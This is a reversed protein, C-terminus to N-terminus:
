CLITDVAAMCEEATLRNVMDFVYVAAGQCLPLAKAIPREEHPLYVIKLATYEGAFRGLIFPTLDTSGTEVVVVDLHVASHEIQRLIHRLM